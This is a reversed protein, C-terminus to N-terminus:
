QGAEEAPPETAAVAQRAQLQVYHFTFFMVVAFVVLTGIFTYIVRHQAERAYNRKLDQQNYEWQLDRVLRSLLARNMRVQDDALGKSDPAPSQMRGNYFEALSANLGRMDITRRALEVGLTDDDYVEVMLREATFADDWVDRAGWDPNPGEYRAFVAGLAEVVEPELPRGRARTRASIFASKLSLIYQRSSRGRLADGGAPPRADVPSEAAHASGPDVTGSDDVRSM